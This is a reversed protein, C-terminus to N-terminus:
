CTDGANVAEVVLTARYRVLGTLSTSPKCRDDYDWNVRLCCDHLMCQLLSPQLIHRVTISGPGETGESPFKWFERRIRKFPFELRRGRGVAGVRWEGGEGRMLPVRGGASGRRRSSAASRLEPEPWDVWCRGSAKAECLAAVMSWVTVRVNCYNTLNCGIPTCALQCREEFTSM